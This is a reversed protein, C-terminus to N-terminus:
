RPPTPVAAGDRVVAGAGAFAAGRLGGGRLGGRAIATAAAGLTGFLGRAASRLPVGSGGAIRSGGGLAAATTARLGALHRRVRARIHAVAFAIRAADLASRWGGRARLVAM